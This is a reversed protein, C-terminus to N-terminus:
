FPIDDPAPEPQSERQQSPQRTPSQRNAQESNSPPRDAQQDGHSSDQGGGQDDRKGLMLMRDVTMTLKTRKDGTNKDQWSEQRLRGVLQVNSGKRLYQNMVEATKGFVAFDLFVTEDVWEGGKKAKETCAICNNLVATGNQLYRLEMERVLNGAIIVQNFNM